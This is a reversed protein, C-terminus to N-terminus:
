RRSSITSGLSQRCARCLDLGRGDKLAACLAECELCRALRYGAHEKVFRVTRCDPCRRPPKFPQGDLAARKRM